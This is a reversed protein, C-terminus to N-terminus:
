KKQNLIFAEKEYLEKLKSPLIINPLIWENGQNDTSLISEKTSQVEEEIAEIQAPTYPSHQKSKTGSVTTTDDDGDGSWSQPTTEKLEEIAAELSADLSTNEEESNEPNNLNQPVYNKVKNKASWSQEKKNMGDLKKM